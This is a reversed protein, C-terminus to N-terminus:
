VHQHQPELEDIDQSTSPINTAHYSPNTPTPATDATTSAMLTQIVQPALNTPPTRPATSPQGGIYDDCMARFLLDLERETPKQSTITSPAYTLDLGSSIKRSTMSQLGPKSGRQEFAMESLENFTVIITEIIKKTWKGNISKVRMPCCLDVHLLHLRQKSNPIPKPPHSAQKSKGQERSPCLHEMARKINNYEFSMHKKNKSLLLNRHHEEVKVKKNNIRSSKSVSPVRDDKTNSRPQPRKTKATNHELESQLDSTEVVIPNQVISMIHHSVITRLLRKIGYELAKHKALSEDTETLEDSDYVLAKDTETGLTLAQQLNAMLICNANVKEIEDLDKANAILDFEEVQLKISANNGNGNGEVRTEVVNGNGHQNVNPNAIGIVVILGNHNRVNQGAYQRFQNGGNSGVMQMQRDQGMNM